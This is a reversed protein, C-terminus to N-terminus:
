LIRRKKSVITRTEAEKIRQNRVSEYKVCIFFVILYVVFSAITLSIMVMWGEETKFPSLLTEENYIITYFSINRVELDVKVFYTRM